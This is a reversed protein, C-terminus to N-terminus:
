HDIIFFYMVPIPIGMLISEILESKQQEEWVNERQFKPAIVISAYKDLQRKLDYVSFQDRSIKVTANLYFNSSYDEGELKDQEEIM